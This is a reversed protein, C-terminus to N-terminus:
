AERVSSVATTWRAKNFQVPLLISPTGVSVSLVSVYMTASGSASAYPQDLKTGVAHPVYKLAIREIETCKYMSARVSHEYQYPTRTCRGHM